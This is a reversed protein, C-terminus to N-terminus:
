PQAGEEKLSVGMAEVYQEMQEYSLASPIAEYLYGEADVLLSTPYGPIGVTGSVLLDRDEFVDIGQLEYKEVVNQTNSEDERDWPHILLVAFDDGNYNDHLKKIDPMEDMCYPCWETFFNILLAKGEYPTLDLTTNKLAQAVHPMGEANKAPVEQAMAPIAMCLCVALLLAALRRHNTKQKM